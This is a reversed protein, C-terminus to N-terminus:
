QGYRAKVQGWTAPEVANPGCTTRVEWACLTGIDLGENDSVLLIWDGAQDATDFATLPENPIYNAAPVQGGPFCTTCAAPAACEIGIGGGDDDLVIQRICALDSECGVNTGGPARGPRDILTVTTGGHTVQVLLDGVWTHDIELAIDVDNMVCTAIATLTDTVGTPTDDPIPLSPESRFVDATAAASALALSLIVIALTRM